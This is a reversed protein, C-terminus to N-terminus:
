TIPPNYLGGLLSMESINHYLAQRILSEILVRLVRTTPEPPFAICLSSLVSPHESALAALVLMTFNVIAQAVPISVGLYGLSFYFGKM